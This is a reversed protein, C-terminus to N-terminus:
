SIVDIAGNKVIKALAIYLKKNEDSKKTIFDDLMYKNAKKANNIIGKNSRSLGMDIIMFDINKGKKIVIINNDHLDQHYIGLKHMKAIKENLKKKDEDNLLGKKQKHQNLTIGEVYEM